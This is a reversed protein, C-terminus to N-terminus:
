IVIRRRHNFSLNFPWNYPMLTPVAEDHRAAVRFYTPQWGLRFSYSNKKNKKRERQANYLRTVNSTRHQTKKIAKKLPSSFRKSNLCFLFFIFFSQHNTATKSVHVCPINWIFLPFSLLSFFCSFGNSSDSLQIIKKCYKTKRTEVNKTNINDNNNNRNSIVILITSIIIIRRMMLVMM